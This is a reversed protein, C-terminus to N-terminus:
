SALKSLLENAEQKQEDNGDALVEELIGRTGEQDGMDMYARALDLKTSIEDVDDLSSLDFDGEDVIDDNAATVAQKDADKDTDSELASASEEETGIDMLEAEDSLDLMVDEEPEGKDVEAVELEDSELASEETMEEALGEDSLEVASDDDLGFELDSSEVEIEETATDESLSQEVEEEPLGIDIDTLDMTEEEMIEDETDTDGETIAATDLEDEIDLETADIDLSFEDDSEEIAGTDSLDFEIEEAPGALVDDEASAAESEMEPLELESEVLVDADAASEEAMEGVDDLAFEDASGDAVIDDVAVEDSSKFMPNDACLSQGMTMIKQWDASDDALRGNLETAVETFAEANKSAYHTEALKVRYDNRDPNEIIAQNLLDEAQQYIGYALYVEAEAIVDDRQEENSEDASEAAAEVEGAQEAVKAESVEEEPMVEDGSATETSTEEAAAEETLDEALSELDTFGSEPLEDDETAAKRRKIILAILALVLLLGGGAGALLMPDSLLRSLPDAAPQEVDRAAAVDNQAAPETDSVNGEVATPSEEQGDVEDAFVADTAAEQSGDEAAESAAIDEDIMDQSPQDQSAQGIGDESAAESDIMAEDAAEANQESAGEAAGEDTMQQATDEPQASLAEAGALGEDEVEVLGQRQNAVQELSTIRAQLAEKEVRETEIRERAQALEARLEQASMQSPDKSGAVSSGTGAAVIALHGNDTASDAAAEGSGSAADAEMASAPQGGSQSQAYQRWLAAHERMMAQAEAKSIAAIQSADPKRLIYGRKLGNINDYNFAGPNARLIAFMMQPVSVNKNPRMADALSWATDGTKIRYSNPPQNIPTQQQVVPAPMFAATASTSTNAPMTNTASVDAPVTSQVAAPRSRSVSPVPAALTTGAESSPRSETGSPRSESNDTSSADRMMFVPPDLLVTYERLLHGNPWDIEILFNLYPERIPSGSTVKIHPVDDIIVSKFRLDNLSYPRDIGARSFEKRSALKVIISETDEPTASLLEIDASLKQNLASNVEIDGLGLTFGAHPIFLAGAVLTALLKRSPLKRV